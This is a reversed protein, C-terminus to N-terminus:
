IKRFGCNPCCSQGVGISYVQDESLIEKCKPCKPKSTPFWQGQINPMNKLQNIHDFKEQYNKNVKLLQLEEAVSKGKPALVMLFKVNSPKNLLSLIRHFAERKFESLLNGLEPPALAVLIAQSNQKEGLKQFLLQYMRNQDDIAWIFNFSSINYDEGDPGVIRKIVRMWTYQTKKYINSTIDEFFAQEVVPFRKFITKLSLLKIQALKKSNLRDWPTFTYLSFFSSM